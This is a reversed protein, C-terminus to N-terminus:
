SSKGPNKLNQLVAFPNEKEEHVTQSITEPTAEILPRYPECQEHVVLQPISLMVEDEILDNLLIRSDEVLYTEYGGQLRQAKEDNSVFVVDISTEIALSMVDLCRQCILSLNGIVKGKLAPLGSENKYFSLHVDLTGEKDSLLDAIRTLSAIDCVGDFVRGQEVLRYPNVEVPLRTSMPAPNYFNRAIAYLKIRVKEGWIVFMVLAISVLVGVRGSIRADLEIKRWDSSSLNRIAKLASEGSISSRQRVLSGGVSYTDLSDKAM